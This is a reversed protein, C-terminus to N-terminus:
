KEDKSCEAPSMVSQKMDPEGCMQVMGGKLASKQSQKQIHITRPLKDAEQDNEAKLHRGKLHM